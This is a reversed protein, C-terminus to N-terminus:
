GDHSPIMASGVTDVVVCRALVIGRGGGDQDGERIERHRRRATAPLDCESDEARARHDGEDVSEGDEFARPLAEPLV